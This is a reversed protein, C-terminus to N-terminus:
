FGSASLQQGLAANVVRETDLQAIQEELDLCRKIRESVKETEAEAQALARALYSGFGSPDWDAELDLGASEAGRQLIDVIGAKDVAAAKGAAAISVRKAALEEKKSSGWRSLDNWDQVLSQNGPAPPGLIALADRQSGFLHRHKQEREFRMALLGEAEEVLRDAEGMARISAALTGKAQMARELDQELDAVAVSETRAAGDLAAKARNDQRDLEVIGADLREIRIQLKKQEQEMQRRQKGLKTEARQAAELETAPDHDPITDVPQRCVPCPDGVILSATWTAADAGAQAKRVRVQAAVLESETSKLTKEAREHQTRAEALSALHDQRKIQNEALEKAADIKAKISHPDGTAVLLRDAEERAKREETARAKAKDLLQAAEEIEKGQSALEAPVEISGLLDLHQDIGAVEQRLEVLQHEIAALSELHEASTRQIREILKVKAQARGLEDPDTEGYRDLQTQLIEIKQGAAKARERALAGMRSYIELDLLRRLLRQRSAPDDKLFEAFQGQPLVVTRTFQAFDLGLLEEIASTMEKAGSALVSLPASDGSKGASEVRELRAEKTTAGTKTRRVIRVATYSAGGLEFDLRVKAENRGQSIVPAVLRADDYRAVSGYLSFTIADIVTSKGAGTPGVFAVLDVSDFAIEVSEAFTSFGEMQIRTPRM